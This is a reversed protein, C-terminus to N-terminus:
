AGDLPRLARPHLWKKWKLRDCTFKKTIGNELMTRRIMAEVKPNTLLYTYFTAMTAFNPASVFFLTSVPPWAVTLCVM